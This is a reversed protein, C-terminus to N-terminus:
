TGLSGTCELLREERLFDDLDSGMHEKKMKKSRV